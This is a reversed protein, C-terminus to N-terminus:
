GDDEGQVTDLRAVLAELKQIIYEARERLPAADFCFGREPTWVPAASTWYPGDVLETEIAYYLLVPIAVVAFDKGFAAASQIAAEMVPELYRAM